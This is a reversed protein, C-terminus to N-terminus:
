ELYEVHLGLYRLREEKRVLDSRYDEALMQAEDHDKKFVRYEQILKGIEQQKTEKLFEHNHHAQKLNRALQDGKTINQNNQDMLNMKRETM